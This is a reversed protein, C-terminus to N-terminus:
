LKVEEPAAVSDGFGDRQNPSAVQYSSIPSIDETITGNMRWKLFDKNKTVDDGIRPIERVFMAKKSDFRFHFLPIAQVAKQAKQTRNM